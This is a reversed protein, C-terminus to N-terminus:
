SALWTVLGNERFTKSIISVYTKTDSSLSTKQSPVIIVMSCGTREIFENGIYRPRIVDSLLKGTKM